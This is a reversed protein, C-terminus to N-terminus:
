IMQHIYTITKFWNTQLAENYLRVKSKIFKNCGFSILHINSM